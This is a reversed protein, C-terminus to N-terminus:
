KNGVKEDFSGDRLAELMQAEIRRVIASVKRDRLGVAAAIQVMKLGDAWLTWIRQAFSDEITWTWQAAFDWYEPGMALRRVGSRENLSPDYARAIVKQNVGKLM